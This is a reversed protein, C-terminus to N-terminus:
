AYQRVHGNTQKGVTAHEPVRRVQGMGTSTQVGVGSYLAFDALLQFLGLWYRDQYLASYTADGVSGARTGKNKQPVVVSRLNFKGMAVADESFNRMEPPLEVASVANWRNLLSGFLLGPLPLPMQMGNSKFATPSLFEMAVRNMRGHSPALLYRQALAECTTQGSWADKTGDCIVDVVDFALHDLQWHTPRQGWLAEVLCNSVLETLGTVRIWYTDGARVRLRAGIRQVPGLLASCTLPKVGDLDHIERDIGPEFLVMRQLTESYNARGLYGPLNANTSAQLKLVFSTLM